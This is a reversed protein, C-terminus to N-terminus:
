SVKKLDESRVRIIYSTDRSYVDEREECVEYAVHANELRDIYADRQQLTKLVIMEMNNKRFLSM